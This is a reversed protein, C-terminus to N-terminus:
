LYDYIEERSLTGKVGLNWVAFPSEEGPIDEPVEPREVEPMQVRRRLLEVLQAILQADEEPLDHVDISQMDGGERFTPHRHFTAHSRMLALTFFRPSKDFASLTQNQPTM